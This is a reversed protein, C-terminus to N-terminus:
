RARMVSRWGKQYIGLMTCPRLKAAKRTSLPHIEGARVETLAAPV